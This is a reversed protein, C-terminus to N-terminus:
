REYFLVIMIKRRKEIFHVRSLSIGFEWLRYLDHVCECECECECNCILFAM